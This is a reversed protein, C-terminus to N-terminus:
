TLRLRMPRRMAAVGILGCGLLVLMSPEPVPSLGAVFVGSAFASGFPLFSTLVSADKGSFITVANGGPGEGAIIDALGDGNIDGSGVRVGGVFSAFAAFDFLTDGTKGSFVKVEPTIAGSSNEIGGGAIIDAFGDGDVDGSAVYVGDSPTSSFPTISSLLTSHDSGSFVNILDGNPGTAAIIDAFGDHNIDGSAVRVGGTFDSPFALFQAGIAAGTRGNFVGVNAAGGAAGTVIDLASNGGVNGIAVYVGFRFASGYPRFTLTDTHSPGSFVKVQAFANSGTVVDPAGDGNLDGGALRVGGPFAPISFASVPTLGVGSVITVDAVNNAGSIVWPPLAAAAVACSLASATCAVLAVQIVRHMPM